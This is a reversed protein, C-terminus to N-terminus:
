FTGDESESAEEDENEDGDESLVEGKARHVGRVCGGKQGTRECCSWLFGEPYEDEM